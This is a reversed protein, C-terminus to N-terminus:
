VTCMAEATATFNKYRDWFADNARSSSQRVEHAIEPNAFFEVVRAQDSGRLTQNAAQQICSCLQRTAADRDAAMCAAGVEGSVSGGRNGGGCSALVFITFIIALIRM